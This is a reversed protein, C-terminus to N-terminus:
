VHAWTVGTIAMEAATDSVDFKFAIEAISLGAAYLERMLPIDSETLKANHHKSGRPRDGSLGYYRRWQSVARDTVGFQAALEKNTAGSNLLRKLVDKEPRKRNNAPM